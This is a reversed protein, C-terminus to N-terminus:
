DYEEESDILDDDSESMVTSMVDIEGIVVELQNVTEVSDRQLGEKRPSPTRTEKQAISQRRVKIEPLPEKEKTRVNIMKDVIAARKMANKWIDRLKQQAHQTVGSHRYEHGDEPLGYAQRSVQPCELASVSVYSCKRRRERDKSFRDRVRKLESRNRKDEEQKKKFEKLSCDIESHLTRSQLSNINDQLRQARLSRETSNAYIGKLRRFVMAEKENMAIVENSKRASKFGTNKLPSLHNRRNHTTCVTCGKAHVNTQEARAGAWSRAWCLQKEQKANGLGVKRNGPRPKDTIPPLNRAHSETTSVARRNAFGMELTSVGAPRSNPWSMAATGPLPVPRHRQFSMWAESDQRVPHSQSNPRKSVPISTKPRRNETSM